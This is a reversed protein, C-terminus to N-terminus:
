KVCPITGSSAHCCLLMPLHVPVAQSTITKHPSFFFLVCFWDGKDKVKSHHLLLNLCNKLCPSILSSLIITWHNM